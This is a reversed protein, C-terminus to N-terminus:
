STMSNFLWASLIPCSTDLGVCLVYVILEHFMKLTPFSIFLHKVTAPANVIAPTTRINPDCNIETEISAKGIFYRAM